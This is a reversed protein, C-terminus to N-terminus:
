SHNLESRGRKAKRPRWALMRRFLRMKKLPADGFRLNAAWILSERKQLPAPAVGMNDLRDATLAYDEAQKNMRARIRDDMEGLALERLHGALGRWDDSSFESTDINARAM